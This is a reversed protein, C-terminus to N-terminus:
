TSFRGSAPFNTLDCGYPLYFTGDSPPAGTGSAAYEWGSPFTTAEIRITRLEPNYNLQSTGDFATIASSFTVSSLNNFALANDRVIQARVNLHKLTPSNEWMGHLAARDLTTVTEPLEGDFNPCDNFNQYGGLSTISAPLVVHTLGSSHQFEVATTTYNFPLIVTKINSDWAKGSNFRLVTDKPSVGSTKLVGWGDLYTNTTIATYIQGVTFRAPQGDTTTYWIEDFPQVRVYVKGAYAATAASFAGFCPKWYTWDRFQTMYVYETQGCVSITTEGLYSRYNDKVSVGYRIDPNDWGYNIHDFTLSYQENNWRHTAFWGTEDTIGDSWGLNDSVVYPEESVWLDTYAPTYGTGWAIANFAQYNTISSLPLWVSETLATPAPHITYTTNQYITRGNRCMMNVANGSRYFLNSRM